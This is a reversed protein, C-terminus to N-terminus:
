LALPQDRLFIRLLNSLTFKMRYILFRFSFPSREVWTQTHTTSLPPRHEDLPLHRFPWGCLPSSVFCSRSARRSLISGSLPHQSALADGRDARRLLVLLTLALAM